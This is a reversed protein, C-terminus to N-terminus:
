KPSSLRHGAPPKLVIACTQSAPIVTMRCVPQPKTSRGRSCVVREGYVTQQKGNAARESDIYDRENDRQVQRM